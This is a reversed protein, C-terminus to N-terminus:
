NIRKLENLKLLLIQLCDRIYDHGRWTAKNFESVIDYFAKLKSQYIWEKSSRTQWSIQYGVKGNM